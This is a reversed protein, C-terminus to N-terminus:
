SQPSILQQKLATTTGTVDDSGIIHQCVAVCLTPAPSLTAINEGMIGGIAVIPTDCEASAAALLDPGQVDAKPKTKSAFMPGVAIYDPEDARAALVQALSHTSRGVFLCPGGCDRAQAVSMDEQGVHLGDAGVLRAIDPRDNVVMLVDNRLTLTRLQEARAILERDNLTKERLQLVDAGGAIAQECVSLWPGNCFEETVLVHLRAERLRFRRPGTLLLDQEIAYTEYRMQEVRAAVSADVIKGYEEVCRMAEAARKAAAATVDAHHRRSAETPTAINTGVDHQIDRSSLLADAGFARGVTTLAHRLQKVRETLKRDDLIMRAHEELVRLAERARNLNADITRLIRQDM